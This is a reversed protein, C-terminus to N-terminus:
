VCSTVWVFFLKGHESKRAPVSQVGKKFRSVSGTIGM